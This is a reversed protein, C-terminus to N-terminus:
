PTFKAERFKHFWASVALAGVFGVLCGMWNLFVDSWQFARQPLWGQVVEDLLGVGAMIGTLTTVAWRTQGAARAYWAALWGLASYEIVHFSEPTVFRGIADRLGWNWCPWAMPLSGFLVAIYGILWRWRRRRSKIAVLAAPLRQFTM